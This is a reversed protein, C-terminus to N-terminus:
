KLSYTSLFVQFNNCLSLFFTRLLCFNWDFNQSLSFFKCLLPLYSRKVSHVCVFLPFIPAQNNSTMRICVFRNVNFLVKVLFPDVIFCIAGLGCSCSHTLCNSSFM